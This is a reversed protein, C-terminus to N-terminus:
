LWEKEETEPCIQERLCIRKNFLLRDSEPIKANSFSIGKETM